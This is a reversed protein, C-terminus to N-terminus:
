WRATRTGDINSNNRGPVALKPSNPVDSGHLTPLSWRLPGSACCTSASHMACPMDAARAEQFVNIAAASRAAGFRRSALVEYIIDQAGPIDAAQLHGAAAGTLMQSQARLAQQAESEAEHQKRLAILGAGAALLALVTVVGAVLSLMRVSDDARSFKTSSAWRARIIPTRCM